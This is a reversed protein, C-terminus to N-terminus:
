FGLQVVRPGLERQSSTNNFFFIYPSKMRVNLENLFSLSRRIVYLLTRNVCFGGFPVLEGNLAVSVVICLLQPLNVNIKFKLKFTGRYLNM